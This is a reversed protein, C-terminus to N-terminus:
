LHWDHLNVLDYPYGWIDDLDYFVTKTNHDQPEEMKLVGQSPLLLWQAYDFGFGLVLLPNEIPYGNGPRCLRSKWRPHVVQASKIPISVALWLHFGWFHPLIKQHLPGSKKKKQTGDSSDLASQSDCCTLRCSLGLLHLWPGM